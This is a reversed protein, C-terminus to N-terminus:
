RILFILSLIITKIITSSFLSYNVTKIGLDKLKKIGIKSDDKIKDSIVFHGLYKDDASIHITTGVKECEKYKVNIKDMLKASGVYITNENVKAKTGLGAIEEIDSINCGDNLDKIKEYARKLSTAIPHSSHAEAHTALHLLM